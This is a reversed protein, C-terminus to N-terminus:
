EGPHSGYISFSLDQGCASPLVKLDSTMTKRQYPLRYGFENVKEERESLVPARYSHGHDSFRFDMFDAKLVLWITPNM